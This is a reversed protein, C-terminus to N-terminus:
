KVSTDVRIKKNWDTFDSRIGVWKVIKLCQIANVIGYSEILIRFFTVIVRLSVYFILLFPNEFKEALYYEFFSSQLSVLIIM